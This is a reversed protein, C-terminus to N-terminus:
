YRGGGSPPRTYRAVVDIVAGDEANMESATMSPDLRRGNLFLDVSGRQLNRKTCYLDLVSALRVDPRLQGHVRDGKENRLVVKIPRSPDPSRPPAAGGSGGAGFDGAPVSGGRSFGRTYSGSGSPKSMGGPMDQYRPHEDGRIERVVYEMEALKEQRVSQLHNIEAEIQRIDEQLTNIREM